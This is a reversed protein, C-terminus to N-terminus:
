SGDMLRYLTHIYDEFGRKKWFSYGIRNRAAVRLEVRDIGRSKFWEYIKGLMETGIGKRRHTSTVALDIIDGYRDLEFVPPYKSIRSISYAILDKGDVAVLVLSDDSDMQKQVFEGFKVHGDKSRSFFSDIEKHFDEFEKWLEVIQPVHSEAAPLIEM